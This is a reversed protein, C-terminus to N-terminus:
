RKEWLGEPTRRHEVYPPGDPSEPPEIRRHATWVGIRSVTYETAAGHAHRNRVHDAATFDPIGADHLAEIVAIGGASSIDPLLDDLEQRHTITTRTAVAEMYRNLMAHAVILERPKPRYIELAVIGRLAGGLPSEGNGYPTIWPVLGALDEHLGHALLEKQVRRVRTTRFAKAQDRSYKREWGAQSLEKIGPIQGLLVPKPSVAKALLAGSEIARTLESTGVYDIRMQAAAFAGVAREIQSVGDDTLGNPNGPEDEGRGQSLEDANFKSQGHRALMFPEQSLEPAYSLTM